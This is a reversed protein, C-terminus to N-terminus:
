RMQKRAQKRMEAKQQKQAEQARAALGACGSMESKKKPHALNYKLEELIKNENMSARIIYTVAISFLTSLFYYYSLGASYNNLIALFMLPMVYMMAKMGPMSQQAPNQKQMLWTYFINTVTMLICFLSIHQHFIWDVIPIYSNWTVIADYTSLDDAWLFGQGRLEISTPFFYFLALLVPWQFLMPVCGGMQSVGMRGYLAMLEQQKQMADEQNPYKENIKQVEPLRQAIRMKASSVFSKRQFPYTIGKILLTMLLIILGYNLKYGDLWHFFPLVIFRNVWSVIPWGLYITHELEIDEEGLGVRAAIEESLDNLLPYNNPGFYFCLHEVDQELDFFLNASYDKLYTAGLVDEENILATRLEGDRFLNRSILMSSFFQNKFNFWTLPGSITKQGNKTSSELDDDDPEEGAFRYYLSSYREEFDRGVETRLLRHNWKFNMRNDHAILNLNKTCIDFGVVYSEPSLSYAFDLVGGDATSLRMVVSSDTVNVPTFYLNATNIDDRMSGRGEFTFSMSNNEKNFLTLQTSDLNNIHNKLTASEIMGGHTNVTVKLVENELTIIQEEGYVASVLPGYQVAFNLSDRQAQVLLVSDKQEQTLSDALAQLELDKQQQAEREAAEILAQARRERERETANKGNWWTMGMFLVFLLVTGILTNKNM